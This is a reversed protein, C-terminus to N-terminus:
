PREVFIDMSDMCVCLCDDMIEVLFGKDTGDDRSVAVRRLGFIVLNLLFHNGLQM